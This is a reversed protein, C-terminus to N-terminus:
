ASSCAAWSGMVMKLRQWPITQLSAWHWMDKLFKVVVLLWLSCLIHMHGQSGDFVMLFFGHFIILDWCDWCNWCNWGWLKSLGLRSPVSPRAHLLARSDSAQHLKGLWRNAWSIESNRCVTGLFFVFWKQLILEKARGVYWQNFSKLVGTNTSIRHPWLFLFDASPACSCLHRGRRGTLTTLCLRHLAASHGVIIAWFGVWFSEFCEKKCPFTQNPPGENWSIGM